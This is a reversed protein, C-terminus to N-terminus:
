DLIKSILHELGECTLEEALGEVVYPQCKSRQNVTQSEAIM